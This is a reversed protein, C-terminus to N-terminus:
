EKLIRDIFSQPEFLKFDSYKEGIGVFAFPIGLRRAITIAIGGKSLSDYKTLIIADVGVAEHFTEAQHIANQGTTADLVLIKKIIYNDSQKEVIRTIKKLEEILNVKTHMRGATDAIVLDSKKAIASQVADYIVAAPDSGPKHAVVPFNLREGHIQLQDIAAARFTDGAALVINKVNLENQYFHAMKAISTTKGVGNVGLVLYLNLKNPEPLLSISLIKEKLIQSFHDFLLSESISSDFKSKDIFDKFEDIIDMTAIAGVDSSLLLEELQDYFSDDIKNKTFLTALKQGFGVKKNKKFM